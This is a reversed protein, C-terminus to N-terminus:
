FGASPTPEAVIIISLYMCVSVQPLEALPHLSRDGTAALSDQALPNRRSAAQENGTLNQAGSGQASGHM